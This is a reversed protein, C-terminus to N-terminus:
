KNNKQRRSGGAHVMTKVELETNKGGEGKVAEKEAHSGFFRQRLKRTQEKKKGFNERLRRAKKKNQSRLEQAGALEEM